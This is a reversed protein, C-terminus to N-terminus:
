HANTQERHIKVAAYAISSGKIPPNPKKVMVTIGKLPLDGLLRDAIGQALSELLNHSKGEVVDRTARYMLTYSVTDELQDSHGALSLDIEAELDVEYGQGLVKEEQNVGHYGYFSMGKLIIRDSAM